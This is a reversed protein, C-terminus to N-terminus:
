LYYLMREAGQPPHPAMSRVVMDEATVSELADEGGRHGWGGKITTANPPRRVEARTVGKVCGGL